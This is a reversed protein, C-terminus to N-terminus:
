DRSYMANRISTVIHKHRMRRWRIMWALSGVVLVLPFLWFSGLCVGAKAEIANLDPRLRLLEEVNKVTAADPKGEFLDANGSGKHLIGLALCHLDRMKTLPTLDHKGGLNLIGLTRLHPMSQICALNTPLPAILYRLNTLKQLVSGDLPGNDNCALVLFRLNDMHRISALGRVGGWVNFARLQVLHGLGNLDVEGSDAILCLHRLSKLFPVKRLSHDDKDTILYLTELSPLDGDVDSLAPGSLVLEKSGVNRLARIVERALSQKRDRTNSPCIGIATGQLKELVPLSAESLALGVCRLTGSLKKWNWRCPNPTLGARGYAGDRCNELRTYDTETIVHSAAGKIAHWDASLWREKPKRLDLWVPRDNCYVFPWDVRLRLPSKDDGQRIPFLIPISISGNTEKTPVFVLTAVAGPLCDVTITTASDRDSRAGTFNVVDIGLSYFPLIRLAWGPEVTFTITMLGSDARGSRADAFVFREGPWRPEEVPQATVASTTPRNEIAAPSKGEIATRIPPTARKGPESDAIPLTNVSPVSIRPADSVKGPVESSLQQNTKQAESSNMTPHSEAQARTESVQAADDQSGSVFRQSDPSSAANMVGARHEMSRTGDWVRLIRDGDGSAIRKGDPSFAVCGVLHTHGKLTLTEQGTTTNWVKLTGDYSGSVIRKGDPSFVVSTIYGTHGKLTFTEQGTTADWVKVTKDGNGSAIRKGDPSFAVSNVTGADAGLTLEEEGSTADWIKSTQDSSGSVIRKGDPSFAVSWIADTHGKLTFVEQGTTADWMKLTNDRGGGVIRKGDPSFAVSRVENTHGKLTQVEQGSVADWVKVTKDRSGSAIRKGDPSFAVCTVDDTHGKFTLTEQGSAADWTKMTNDWGGSAIWKGDPSFAVCDAQSGEIAVPEQGNTADWTKLTNDNGGSVIRKGDPSFAVSLVEGIHGKLTFVGQGTTADWVMLANDWSGSVIRKGDPSFAVSTVWKIHGKLTVMERGTTADWLKLLREDGGGIIRKGDPSFAVGAVAGINGSFTLLERGTTADWIRLMKDWSGSVIRKGDPSFAVCGVVSTHGTLTLTAQGSAADWVRVTTDNGSSAIRKGDPSFAVSRVENTHGKLTLVEQGSAADWVKVTKDSSGSAIRKGDPSYAVSWVFDTHGKLALIERTTKADWVKLTKDGSGSVIRKGDPSFAVSLVGGTHGVFTRQNKTFLTYLYDHEWGRLDARCANLHQWAAPTSNTEWERLACVLHNVYLEKEAREKELTAKSANKDARVKERDAERRRQEADQRAAKENGLAAEAKQRERDAEVLARSTGVYGVSAVVAVIALLFAAAGALAAVAPERKCWRWFREARGVPRAQVPRGELFRQLEDALEEASGYRRRPDKELCKACITELDRPLAPNLQRLPLPDRQQVQLLTEWATAAQFPPRGTLLAYLTAGLSYVDSQVTVEGLQGEAQEPPMYAPTGLIAGTTTLGSDGQVQRALGFDTVRPRDERGVLINAPKLDRHIIGRDHAYAIARAVQEMLRVAEGAPLPNIKLRSELSEGEVFDMSFYQQGKYEGIEFIRVIGPHDLNAAAEAEVRFREVDRKDAFRGALIMKVAVVRNLSVQRAKYVVGMGGKGLQELLLYDGFYRVASGLWPDRKSSETGVVGAASVADDDMMRLREALEPHRTGWTELYEIHTPRDGHRRRVYYEDVILEIPLDAIPGLQPYRAVYHALRPRRPLVIDSVASHRGDQGEVSATPMDAVAQQTTPLQATRWRWELDIGVLHALLAFQAAENVTSSQAPLFDEIQPRQGNGWATEFRSCTDDILGSRLYSQQGGQGVSKDGM